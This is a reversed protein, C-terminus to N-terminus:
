YKLSFAIYMVENTNQYDGFVFSVLEIFEIENNHRADYRFDSYAYKFATKADEAEYLVSSDYFSDKYFTRVEFGLKTM